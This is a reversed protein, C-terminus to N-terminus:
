PNTRKPRSLSREVRRILLVTPVVTSWSLLVAAYVIIAESRGEHFMETAVISPVGLLCTAALISVTAPKLESVERTARFEAIVAFAIDHLTRAIIIAALIGAAAYLVYVSAFIARFPMILTVVGLVTGLGIMSWLEHLHTRELEVHHDREHPIQPLIIDGLIAGVATLGILSLGAKVGLLVFAVYVCFAALVEARAEYRHNRFFRLRIMWRVGADAIALLIAALITLFITAVISWIDEGRATSFAVLGIADNLLSEVTLLWFLGELRRARVMALAIGIAAPDTATLGTAILHGNPIDMIRTAIYIAVGRMALAVTLFLVLRKWYQRWHHRATHFGSFQAETEIGLAVLAELIKPLFVILGGFAAVGEGHTIISNLLGGVLLAIGVTRIMRDELEKLENFTGLLFAFLRKRIPCM